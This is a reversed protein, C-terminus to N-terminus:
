ATCFANNPPTFIVLFAVSVEFCLYSPYPVHKSSSPINLMPFILLPLFTKIKPTCSDEKTCLFLLAFLM